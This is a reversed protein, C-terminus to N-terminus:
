RRTGVNGGTFILMDPPLSLNYSTIDLSFEFAMTSSCRLGINRDSRHEKFVKRAKKRTDDIKRSFCILSEYLNLGWIEYKWIPNITEAWAKSNVINNRIKISTDVLRDVRFRNWNRYLRRHTKGPNARTEWRDAAICDCYRVRTFQLKTITPIIKAATHIRAAM